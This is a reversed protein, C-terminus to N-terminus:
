VGIEEGKGQLPITARHKLSSSVSAWLIFDTVQQQVKLSSLYQIGAWGEDRISGPLSPLFLSVLSYLPSSCWPLHYCYYQTPWSTRQPSKQIFFQVFKKALGTFHVSLNYEPTTNPQIVWLKNFHHSKWERNICFVGVGCGLLKFLFLMTKKEHTQSGTPCNEKEPPNLLPGTNDLLDGFPRVWKVNEALTYAWSPAKLSLDGTRGTLM